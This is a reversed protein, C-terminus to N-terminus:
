IIDSIKEHNTFCIFFLNTWIDVNKLFHVSVKVFRTIKVTGRLCSYTGLSYNVSCDSAISDSIAFDPNYVRKSIKFIDWNLKMTDNRESVLNQFSNFIFIM